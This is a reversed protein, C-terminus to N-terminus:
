VLIVRICVAFLHSANTKRWRLIERERIRIRYTYGTLTSSSETDLLEAAKPIYIYTYQTHHVHSCHVLTRLKMLHIKRRHYVTTNRHYPTIVICSTVSVTNLAPLSQHCVPITNYFHSIFHKFSTILTTSSVISKLIVIRM